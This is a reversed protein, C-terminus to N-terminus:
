SGDEDWTVVPGTTDSCEFNFTVTSEGDNTVSFDISNFLVSMGIGVETSSIAANSDANVLFLVIAGGARDSFEAVAADGSGTAHPIPAYDGAGASGGDKFIPMGAASGTCDIVGSGRRDAFTAGFGTTNISTRTFSASWSKLTANFGTPMVVFGDSGHAYAM